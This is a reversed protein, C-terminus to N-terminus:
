SIGWIGYLIHYKSVKNINNWTTPDAKPRRNVEDWGFGSAMRTLLYEKTAWRSKLFKYQNRIASISRKYGRKLLVEKVAAHVGKKWRLGIISYEQKLNIYAEVLALNDRGELWLTPNERVAKEARRVIKDDDRDSEPEMDVDNPPASQGSVGHDSADDSFDFVDGAENASQSALPSRARRVAGVVGLFGPHVPTRSSPASEAGSYHSIYPSIGDGHERVPLPPYTSSEEPRPCPISPRTPGFPSSDGNGAYFSPDFEPTVQQSVSPRHNTPTTLPVPPTFWLQEGRAPWSGSSVTTHLPPLLQDM